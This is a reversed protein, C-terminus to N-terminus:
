IQCTLMSWWPGVNAFGVFLRVLMPKTNQVVRVPMLQTPSRGRDEFGHPRRLRILHVRAPSSRHESEKVHRCFWPSRRDRCVCRECTAVESLGRDDCRVRCVQRVRSMGLGGRRTRLRLRSFYAGTGVRPPADDESHIYARSSSAPTGCLICTLTGPM